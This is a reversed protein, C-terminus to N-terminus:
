NFCLVVQDRMSSPVMTCVKELTAVIDKEVDPNALLKSLMEVTVQCIECSDSNVHEAAAAAAKTAHSMMGVAFDGKCFSLIGCVETLNQQQLM